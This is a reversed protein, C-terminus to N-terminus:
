PLKACVQVLVNKISYWSFLYEFLEMRFCHQGNEM